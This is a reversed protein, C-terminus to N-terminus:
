FLDGLTKQRHELAALDDLFTEDSRRQKEERQRTEENMKKDYEACQKKFLAKNEHEIKEMHTRHEKEEEALIETKNERLKERREFEEKGYKKIAADIEKGYLPAELNRVYLNGYAEVLIKHRSRCKRKGGNDVLAVCELVRDKTRNLCLALLDGGSTRFSYIDNFRDVYYGSFGYLAVLLMGKSQKPHPTKYYGEKM